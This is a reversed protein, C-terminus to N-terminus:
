DAPKFAGIKEDLLKWIGNEKVYWAISQQTYAKGLVLKYNDLYAKTGSTFSVTLLTNVRAKTFDPSFVAFQTDIGDLKMSVQYQKNFAVLSAAENNGAFKKLREQSLWPTAEKGDITRYDTNGSAHQYDNSAKLLAQVDANNETAYQTGKALPKDAALDNGMADVAAFDNSAAIAYPTPKQAVTTQSCGALTLVSVAIVLLPRIGRITKTM